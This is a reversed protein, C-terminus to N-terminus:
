NWLNQNKLSFTFIFRPPVAAPINYILQDRQPPLPLLFCPPPSICLLPSFCAYGARVPLCKFLEPSFCSWHCLHLERCQGVSFLVARVVGDTVETSSHRCSLECWGHTGVGLNQLLAVVYSFARTPTMRILDVLM